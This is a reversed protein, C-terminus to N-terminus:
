IWRSIYVVRTSYETYNNFFAVIKEVLIKLINKTDKPIKLNLVCHELDKRFICDDIYKKMAKDLNKLKIINEDTLDTEIVYKKYINIMKATIIDGEIPTFNIIDYYNTCYDVVKM